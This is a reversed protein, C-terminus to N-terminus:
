TSLGRLRAWRSRVSEEDKDADELPLGLGQALALISNLQRWREPLSASKMEEVEFAAVARWRDMYERAAQADVGM